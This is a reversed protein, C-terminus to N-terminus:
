MQNGSVAPFGTHSTIEYTFIYIIISPGKAECSNIRDNAKVELKHDQNWSWNFYVKESIKM